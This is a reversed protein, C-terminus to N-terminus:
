HMHFTIRYQEGKLPRIEKKTFFKDATNFLQINSQPLSSRSSSVVNRKQVSPQPVCLFSTVYTTFTATMLSGKIREVSTVRIREMCQTQNSSANNPNQISRLSAHIVTKSHRKTSPMSFLLYSTSIRPGPGSVDDRM